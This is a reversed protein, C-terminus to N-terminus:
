PVYQECLEVVVGDTLTAWWITSSFGEVLYDPLEALTGVSVDASGDVSLRVLRVVADDTVSVERLQPNENLVYYDNPPGQDDGTDAEYADAADQGILWQVVDVSATKEVGDFSEITVAFTGDDSFDASSSGTPLNPCAGLPGDMVGTTPEATTQAVSTSTVSGASDDGGSSCGASVLLVALAPGLLRRCKPCVIQRSM